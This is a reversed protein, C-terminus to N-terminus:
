RKKKIDRGAIDGTPAQHFVQMSGEIKKSTDSGAGLLVRLAEDQLGPPSSRFRALLLQEEPTLPVPAPEKRSGTLVYTPDVRTAIALAALLDASLRKRGGLVDRLGQSDPEGALKAAAVPKLGLRELEEKLRVHILEVFEKSLTSYKWSVERVFLLSNM